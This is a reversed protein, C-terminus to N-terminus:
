THIKLGLRRNPIPLNEWFSIIKKGLTAVVGCSVVVV